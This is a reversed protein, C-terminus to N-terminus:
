RKLSENLVKWSIEREPSNKDIFYKVYDIYYRVEHDFISDDIEGGWSGGIALNLLLYYPWDFPWDLYTADKPREYKVVHQFNAYVSIEQPTWVLTFNQFVDSCNKLDVNGSVSLLDPPYHYGAMHFTSYLTNKTHGVYEMIDIEGNYPFYMETGLMWIAPWTGKGPPIRIHAEVKGYQFHVRNKTTISASSYNYQTGDVSTYNQDHHCELILHGNEVRSNRLDKRMYYQNEQNRVFGEEYVWINPDPLGVYNFDESWALEWDQSASSLICYLFFNLLMM